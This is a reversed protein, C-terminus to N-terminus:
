ESMTELESFPLDNWSGLGLVKSEYGESWDKEWVGFGFRPCAIKEAQFAKRGARDAFSSNRGMWWNQELSLM